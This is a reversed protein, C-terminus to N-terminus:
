WLLHLHSPLYPRHVPRSHRLRHAQARGEALRGRLRFPHAGRRTEQLCLYQRPLEAGISPHSPRATAPSSPLRAGPSSASSLRMPPSASPPKSANNMSMPSDPCPISGAAASSASKRRLWITRRRSSAFLETYLNVPLAFPFRAPPGPFRLFAFILLFIGRRFIHAKERNERGSFRM